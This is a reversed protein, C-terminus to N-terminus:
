RIASVIVYALVMILPTAILLRSCSTFLQWRKTNTGKNLKIRKLYQEIENAYLYIQRQEKQIEESYFNERFFLDPEAGVTGYTHPKINQYITFCVVVMYAASILATILLNDFSKNTDWRNISYGILATLIAVAISILVTSRAVVVASTDVTDKLLKETHEFIFKADQIEMRAVYESPIEWTKELTKGKAM